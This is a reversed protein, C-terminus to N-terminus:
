EVDSSDLDVMVGTEGRMQDVDRQVSRSREVLEEDSDPIALPVDSESSDCEPSEPRSRKRITTIDAPLAKRPSHVTSKLKGLRPGLEIKDRSSHLSALAKLQPRKDAM